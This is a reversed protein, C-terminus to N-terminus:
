KILRGEGLCPGIPIPELFSSKVEITPLWQRLKAYAAISVVADLMAVAFGGQINGFHNRFAPQPAFELKVFGVDLDADVITVPTLAAFGPKPHRDLLRRMEEGEDNTAPLARGGGRSLLGEGHGLWDVFARPSGERTRLDARRERWKGFVQHKTT